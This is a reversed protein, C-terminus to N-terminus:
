MSTTSVETGSARRPIIESGKRGKSKVTSQGRVCEMPGVTTKAPQLRKCSAEWLLSEPSFSVHELLRLIIWHIMSAARTGIQVRSPLNLM